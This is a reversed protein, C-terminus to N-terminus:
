ELARRTIKTRLQYYDYYNGPGISVAPYQLQYFQLALGIVRNNENNTLIRGSSDESTFVTANSIASAVLSPQAAGNTARRLTRDSGSWFYRVFVNTNTSPYVQIASGSQLSNPPTEVFTSQNGQGIRVVKASRIEAILLGIAKRADDSAGLKAKTLEFMRMGFLHSGLVAAMVLMIITMSVMIEPLTFGSRSNARRDIDIDIIFRM